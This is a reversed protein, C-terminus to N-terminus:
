VLTSREVSATSQVSASKLVSSVATYRIKCLVVVFEVLAPNLSSKFSPMHDDPPVILSVRWVSARRTCRQDAVDAFTITCLVHLLEIVGEPVEDVLRVLVFSPEPFDSVSVLSQCYFPQPGLTQQVTSEAAGCQAQIDTLM